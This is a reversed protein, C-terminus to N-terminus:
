PACKRTFFYRPWAGFTMGSSASHHILSGPWCFMRAATASPWAVMASVSRSAQRHCAMIMCSSGISASMTAAARACARV